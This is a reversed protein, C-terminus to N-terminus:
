DVHSVEASNLLVRCAAALGFAEAHAELAEREAPDPARLWALAVARGIPDTPEEAEVRAAMARARALVFGDNMLALAQLPTTTEFRQATLVSPDACDFAQMWPDPVSRVVFRYVARRMLAPDRPDVEGHLYRPSHDDEFRFAQFGPGGMTLDLEGSLSLLADRLAEAGLRRRPAHSLLRRSGDLERALAGPSSSQRYTASRVITRHLDKLSGGSALLRAALHDLLKPHSPPVGMRGFDSPTAALGQGLHRQWIRNAISRWTLPNDPAAIWEALALRRASEPADGPLEFRAAAHGAAAFAGPASAAGPADADGRALVAVPRANGNGVPQFRGEGQFENAAAYVRRQPPLAELATLLPTREELLATLEAEVRAAGPATRRVRALASEVRDLPAQEPAHPSRGDVLMAAGWRPAAEITDSARVTAGQARNSGQHLVELEALAFCFDGGRDFLARSTVRVAQVSEEEVPFLLPANAASRPGPARQWSGAMRWPADEASRVEVELEEPLGFGAGAHGRFVENAPHLRIADAPGVEELEVMVWRLEDPRAAIGSHWGMSGSRDPEPLAALLRDREVELDRAGPAALLLQTLEAERESRRQELEQVARQLERRRAATAPDADFAVEARDVGAFVAQLDFYEEQSVPDFKHDHCRACQATTSLLATAVTAVMDDRDLSRVRRKESTGDAVEVQGVFDWPGAVLMGTAVVGPGPELVDGALQMRVFDGYPLDANLAEIVWDRYPWAHPRPKDKDFGHSDAYHVLDLWAQAQREGFRPSALLREIAADWAAESPDACFAAVEEPTPPLGVLDLHLRRLLSRPDAPPAPELGAARLRELVFADLSERVWPDEATPLTGTTGLPALSWWVPEEEAGQAWAPGASLALLLALTTM